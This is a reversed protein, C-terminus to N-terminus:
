GNNKKNSKYFTRKIHNNNNNENLRSMKRKEKSLIKEELIMIEKELKEMLQAGKIEAALNDCNLHIKELLRLKNKAEKVDTVLERKNRIKNTIKQKMNEIKM